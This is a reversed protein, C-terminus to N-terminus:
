ENLSRIRGGELVFAARRAPDDREIHIRQGALYRKRYRERVGDPGGLRELDRPRQLAREIADDFPLDIWVSVDFMETRHGTFLFCGEVVLVGGPDVEIQDLTWADRDWDLARVQFSGTRGRAVSALLADVDAYNFSDLYYGLAEDRRAYRQKSPRTCQDGHLVSSPIGDSALAAALGLALTSKGACDIGSIGITVARQEQDRLAVLHAM